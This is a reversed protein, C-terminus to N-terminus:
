LHNRILEPHPSPHPTPPPSFLLPPPTPTPPTPSLYTIFEYHVKYRQPPPQLPPFDRRVRGNENHMRDIAYKDLFNIKGFMQLTNCQRFSSYLVYTYVINQMQICIQNKEGRSYYYLCLM